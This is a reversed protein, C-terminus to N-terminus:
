NNSTKAKTFRYWNPKMAIKEAIRARIINFADETPTYDNYFEGVMVNDPDLKADVNIKYGRDVLEVVIEDYRQQLYKGKDYFFLVHGTNLTFKSPIKKLIKESSQTRLSRALAKPIMKLERFEAMLHQDALEQVPVLNVRTM